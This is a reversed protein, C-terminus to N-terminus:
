KLCLWGVLNSDEHIEWLCIWAKDWKSLPFYSRHCGTSIAVDINSSQDDQPRICM